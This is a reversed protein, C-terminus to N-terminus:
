DKCRRQCCSNRSCKWNVSKLAPCNQASQRLAIQVCIVHLNTMKKPFNLVDVCHAGVCICAFVAIM